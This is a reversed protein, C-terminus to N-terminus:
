PAPFPMLGSEDGKRKSYSMRRRKALEEFLMEEADVDIGRPSM